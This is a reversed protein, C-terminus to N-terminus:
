FPNPLPNTFDVFALSVVLLLMFVAVLATLPILKRMDVRRGSVKEAVLVALHGGDLPPLPVVNIIGVFINFVALLELFAGWNGSRAAAGALQAGGVVSTPDTIRRPAGTLLEGIRKLGSPGFVNGLQLVVGKVIQGTLVAARGAAPIPGYRRNAEGLSVGLRGVPEAEGEVRSLVPVARVTVREGGRLVTVAIPLGVHARTYAVFADASEVPRGDVAVIEDGARLGAQSAPSPRGGLEAQVVDILPRSEDPVGIATLLVLLIAFAMVLHTVPGALIVVARHWIPHAGYTRPVDEPPVEEFPNMGAIRVYGGLPLAKVGYDTESRPHRKRGRGTGFFGRKTSWILPGFGVFYEQVRIGFAKAAAFHGAEHVMVVIILAAVFLLIGIAGSM